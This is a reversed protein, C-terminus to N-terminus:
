KFFGWLETDPAAVLGHLALTAAILPSIDTLDARAWAWADGLPRKRAAAIADALNREGRNRVQGTIAAQYFEGTAQALRRGSVLAPELGAQALKGVLAGAQSGPDLLLETVHHEAMKVQLWPVVWGIGDLNEVVEVHPLGDARLGAVAVSASRQDPTVDVAFVLRGAPASRPDICRAWADATIPSEGMSRVWQCLVETRFGSEPDTELASRIAEGSVGNPHGLSPNAQAWGDPDDLECGDPASWEFIGLSGGAELQATAKNRLSALVVSSKDGANSAGVIQASAIAMTTKTVASWADWKQHERLEDLMVLHGSLGRGGRRSAAKVKYREGTTLRLTKKGNTKDVSNIEAALEPVGEAMEVAGAWAEEADDLTLSTGIVLPSRDVFMRWLALVRLLTTKGNQRAVLLLATRFRFTGDPNLELLHVLLWRQWPFLVLGLVTEAFEIAEFGRSTAATLERRPRTWVRPTESGKLAQDSVASAQSSAM